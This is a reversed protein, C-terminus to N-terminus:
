GESVAAAKDSRRRSLHRLDIRRALFITESRKEISTRLGKEAPPLLSQSM